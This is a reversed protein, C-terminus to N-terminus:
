RQREWLESSRFGYLYLAIYQPVSLIAYFVVVTIMGILDGLEPYLVEYGFFYIDALVVVPLWAQWLRRQLLAKSYAFGFVGVLTVAAIAYSVADLAGLPEDALLEVGLSGAVQFALALVTLVAIIWFYIKWGLKKM